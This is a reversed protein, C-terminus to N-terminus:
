VATTAAEDEQGQEVNSDKRGALQKDFQDQWKQPDHGASKAADWAFEGLAGDDLQGATEAVVAAALKPDARHLAELYRYASWAMVGSTAYAAFAQSSIDTSFLAHTTRLTHKLLDQVTEAISEGAEYRHRSPEAPIGDAMTAAESASLTPQWSTHVQALTTLTEAGVGDRRTRAPMQAGLFDEGVILVAQQDATVRVRVMDDAAAFRSLLQTDLVPFEGGTGDTQEIVGRLIGRWNPFALSDDVAVGLESHPSSFRVRGEALTISVPDSGPQAGTWERLSTLCSAPLTRAFPETGDLGHHRYRAAAVTYRDSAVAYLFTADAELRIGHLMAPFEDAIHGITRDILRGLQHANITVPM